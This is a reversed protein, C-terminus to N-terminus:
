ACLYSGVEKAVWSGIAEIVTSPVGFSSQINHNYGLVLIPQPFALGALTEITGRYSFGTVSYGQRRPLSWSDMEKERLKTLSIDEFHRVVSKGNLVLVRIPSDRLALALADRNLRLLRARQEKSLQGWKPITAYPILDLHCAGSGYLSFSTQLVLRDLPRFWVDYPTRAFYLVCYDLMLRVHHAKAQSWDSLRLSKLTHFRRDSELLEKGARDVFERNSPNLGVTALKAISVDGFAPIPAAWEIVGSKEFDPHGLRDILTAFTSYMLGKGKCRESLPRRRLSVQELSPPIYAAGELPAVDTGPPVIADIQDLLDDDLVVESGALYLELQGPTRPGIIASTVAPHAVVFALAMHILSVGASHALPILQEVKELSGEDSMANPFFKARLSDPTPEGKRYKGTLMGKALPSWTMVGMGFRQCAPLVEREISRNLISYPPQETRFRALGRREAVWRADVIDSAPFTSAGIARM